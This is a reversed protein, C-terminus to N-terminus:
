NVVGDSPLEPMAMLEFNYDLPGVALDALFKERTSQSNQRMVVLRFDPDGTIEAIEGDNTVVKLNRFETSQKLM